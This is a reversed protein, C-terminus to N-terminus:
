STGQLLGQLHASDGLTRLFWGDAPGKYEIENIALNHIEFSRRSGQPLGLVEKVIAAATASHTVCLVSAEPGGRHSAAVQELFGLARALTAHRSEGGGPIIYDGDSRAQKLQEPFKTEVDAWAM